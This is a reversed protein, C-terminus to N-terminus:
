LEIRPDLAVTVIDVIFNVIVIACAFVMTIAMVVMYDRTFISSVLLSGLGPVSFVTEIVVTGGILWGLNVGLLNITPILSNRIVHRYFIWREPLGKARCAAVYDSDMEVLLSARLNRVLVASLAIAITLSPLFLHHLHQVFTRGYGSVPFQGLWVSFVIMMMIGLWFAPFGLGVTSVLRIFHDPFRGRYIAAIIALPLTLALAFVLGYTLLFLTATIREGILALVPMKFVISRGMDGKTLNLLFYGYQIYIPKDLGYQAHVAAIVEQTARPGLLIRIPDGPISHILIFTILSIGFLVPIMQIPRFIVFNFRHM